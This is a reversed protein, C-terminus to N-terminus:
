VGLPSNPTVEESPLKLEPCSSCRNLVCSWKFLGSDCSTTCTMYGLQQRVDYSLYIDNAKLRQSYSTIPDTVNHRSRTVRGSTSHPLLAKKRYKVLSTHLMKMVTCSECGCLQKQSFTIPRLQPPLVNRLHRESILLKKTEKCYAERLGVPPPKMLDQHLERISIEILLKGVREKTAM